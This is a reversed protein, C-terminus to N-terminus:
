ESDGCPNENGNVRQREKKRLRKTIRARIDNVVRTCVNMHAAIEDEEAGKLKMLLYERENASRAVDDFTELLEAESPRKDIVDVQRGRSVGGDLERDITLSNTTVVQRDENENRWVTSRSACVVRDAYYYEYLGRYVQRILLTEDTIAIKTDEAKGLYRKSEDKCIETLLFLAEAQYLEVDKQVKKAFREGLKLGLEFWHTSLSEDSFDLITAVVTQTMSLSDNMTGLSQM